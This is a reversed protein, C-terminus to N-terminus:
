KNIKGDSLVVVHVEFRIISKFSIQLNASRRHSDNGLGHQQRPPTIKPRHEVQGTASSADRPM